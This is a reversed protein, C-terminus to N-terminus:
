QLSPVTQLSSMRTAIFKLIDLWNEAITANSSLPTTYITPTKIFIGKIGRDIVENIHKVQDDVHIDIKLNECIEAKSIKNEFYQSSYYIPLTPFKHNFLQLRTQKDCSDPRGTVIFIEHGAMLLSNVGAHAYSEPLIKQIEPTSYFGDVLERAVNDELAPRLNYEVVDTTALTKHIGYQPLRTNAWTLFPKMFPFIVEDFDLSIRM